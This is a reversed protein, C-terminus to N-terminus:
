LSDGDLNVIDPDQDDGSGMEALMAEEFTVGSSKDSAAATQDIMAESIKPPLSQVYIGFALIFFVVGGLVYPLIKCCDQFVHQTIKTLSFFSVFCTWVILSSLPFVLSVLVGSM